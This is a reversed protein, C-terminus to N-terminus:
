LDSKGVCMRSGFGFPLMAFPHKEDGSSRLWREPKFSEPDPFYKENYGMTYGNLLVCTQLLLIEWHVITHINYQIRSTENLLTKSFFSRNIQESVNKPIVYGNLVTDEQMVRANIPIVPYM